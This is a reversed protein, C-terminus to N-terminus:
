FVRKENLSTCRVVPYSESIIIGGCRVMGIRYFSGHCPVRSARRFGSGFISRRRVMYDAMASPFEKIEPHIRCAM